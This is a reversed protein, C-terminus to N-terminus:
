NQVSVGGMKSFDWTLSFMLYRTITTYSNQTFMNNNAYRSFGKNQNFLDNVGVSFRLTEDKLFKKSVSADVIFQEFAYDFSETPATYTYRGESNIEFKLPLYINFSYRGNVGWGSNDGRQQVSAKSFTYTPGFNLYFNYKKQVYQRINIDGSYTSTQTRNLEGNTLNYYTNGNANLGGGVDLDLKKIKKSFGSYFYYNIPSKDSLNDYQFTSRGVSDTTINSVIPNNTNSFSGSFYFYQNGIVKFSNYSMNFRNTYSPKLDPNGLVINLPDDNVRVPQIQSLSPQTNNGNYSFRFSKQQSFRYQYTLQPNHNTFNREFRSDSYRDIQDFQVRSMRTGFNLTSKGKKFNLIAGLQNALQNLKFDNSYLSDLDSYGGAGAENFSQRLSTGNNASFRYNMVLSLTKTFPETYTINSNFVSNKTDNIKMQDVLSTSDVTGDAYFSNEAYLFGNAKSQNITENVEWSVTRGKKRLKKTWLATLYADIGETDNNTRRMSENLRGGDVDTGASQNFEATEGNKLAGDVTVKLTSTSDFQTEFIAGGRQRFIRRDFTQDSVTNISRGNPLNNETITNSTGKVSLEGIKYNGNISQKGENWKNSYYAGGNLASPIGRGDYRGGWSEIEDQGGTSTIYFGGDVDVVTGSPAYRNADQWSLGTRGTNGVTGFVSFRQKNNFRNYMAQGQYMENTGAGADVKGFDGKKQDDKLKINLTKSREGDDVGTFEAQDSKKDYLQVKDVMDGRLNRTVLTPDDGFFEEGDVLVKNVTQGQATIKGDQDVQIGPLQKLLDEVKSNPEINFSAADYETTDGRITIAQSRNVLVEELLKSRLVLGLNGFDFVSSTSDLTFREVYDAYEPFTAFLTYEGTDLGDMRFNGLEDTRTFRYLMSDKAHVLVISAKALKISSATDVVAGKITYGNEQASVSLWCPLVLALAVLIKKM